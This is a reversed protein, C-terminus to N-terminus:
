AQFCYVVVTVKACTKQSHRLSFVRDTMCSCIYLQIKALTIDSPPKLTYCVMM